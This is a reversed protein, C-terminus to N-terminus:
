VQWPNKNPDYDRMYTAIAYETIPKQEEDLKRPIQPNIKCRNADRLWTISTEYDTIRASSINNPSILKHLEYLALRVLHKKINANRPDFQHINYNEKLEDATPKITPYYVKGNYVVYETDKLEYAYTTDYEGIMGWNDSDYPNATLDIDDTSILAYFNGDYSVVDWLMYGDYNAIWEEVGEVEEWGKIGPIRIDNFDYGNPELCEYYTNAYIVIDGPQWNSLQLYPVAKKIKDEDYSDLEKWYEIDTPVKVGTISRLAEYIKGNHYFCAGVPYTITPTYEVLNKGKTLENEVEYNDTLYEVISAEAAEEAQSLRDENNRILQKLAEETIIGLYDNNNLFRKYM